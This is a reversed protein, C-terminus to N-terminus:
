QGDWERRQKESEEKSQRSDLFSDDWLSVAKWAKSGVERELEALACYSIYWNEKSREPMM